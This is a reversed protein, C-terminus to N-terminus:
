EDLNGRIELEGMLLGVNMLISVKTTGHQSVFANEFETSTGCYLIIAAASGKHKPLFDTLDYVKGKYSIWCDNQTDHESLELTSIFSDDSVETLNDADVVNVVVNSDRLLIFSSFGLVLFVILISLLLKNNM